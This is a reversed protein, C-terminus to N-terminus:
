GCAQEIRRLSRPDRAAAFTRHSRYGEDPLQISGPQQVPPHAPRTFSEPVGRCEYRGDDLQSGAIRCNSTVVLQATSSGCSNTATVSLTGGSTMWELIIENPNTNFLINGELEDISWTYGTAGVSTAMYSEFDEACVASAGTIVPVSPIGSVTLPLSTTNGCLSTAVVTIDGNVFSNSFDVLISNGGQGSTINAGAPMIWNYSSAGISSVQYNVGTASCLGETSGTIAGLQPTTGSVVPLCTQDSVACGSNATVCVNGSFVGGPFIVTASTTGNEIM